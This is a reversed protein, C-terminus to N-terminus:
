GFVVKLEACNVQPQNEKDSEHETTTLGDRWEM